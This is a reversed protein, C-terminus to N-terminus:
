NAPVKEQLWSHLYTRLTTTSDTKKYVSTCYEGGRAQSVVGTTNFSSDAGATHRQRHWAAHKLQGGTPTSDTYAQTSSERGHGTVPHERSHHRQKQYTGSPSICKRNKSSVDSGNTSTKNRRPKESMQFNAPAKRMKIGRRSKMELFLCSMM